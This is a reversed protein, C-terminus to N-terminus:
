FACSKPNYICFYQPQTNLSSSLYLFFISFSLSFIYFFQTVLYNLLIYGSYTKSITAINFILAIKTIIAYKRKKNNKKRNTGNSSKRKAQRNLARREARSSGAIGSFGSQQQRDFVDKLMILEAIRAEPKYNHGILVFGLLEEPDKINQEAQDLIAEFEKM